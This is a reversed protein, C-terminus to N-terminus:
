KFVSVKTDDDSLFAYTVFLAIILFGLAIYLFRFYDIGLFIDRILEFRM